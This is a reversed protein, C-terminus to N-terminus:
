PITLLGSTITVDIPLVRQMEIYAGGRDRQQTAKLANPAVTIQDVGLRVRDQAHVYPIRATKRDSWKVFVEDGRDWVDGIEM